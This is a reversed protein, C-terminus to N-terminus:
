IPSDCKWSVDLISFDDLYKSLKNELDEISKINKIHVFNILEEESVCWDNEIYKKEIEYKRLFFRTNDDIQISKSVGTTRGDTDIHYAGLDVFARRDNSTSLIETALVNGSILNNCQKLSLKKM